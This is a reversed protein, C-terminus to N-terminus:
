KQHINKLSDCFNIIKRFNDFLQFLSINLFKYDILKVEVEWCYSPIPIRGDDYYPNNEEDDNDDHDLEFDPITSTSALREYRVM